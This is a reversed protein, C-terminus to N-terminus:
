VATGTADVWGATARWIPKSLTTDFYRYGVNAKTYTPRQATTGVHADMVSMVFAGTGTDITNALVQKATIEDDADDFGDQIRQELNDFTNSL